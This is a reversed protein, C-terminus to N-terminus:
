TFGLEHIDMARTPKLKGLPTGDLTLFGGKVDIRMENCPALAAWIAKKRRKVDPNAQQEVWRAVFLKRDDRRAPRLWRGQHIWLKAEPDLLSKEVWSWPCTRKERGLLLEKLRPVLTRVAYWNACEGNAVSSYYQARYGTSSNHFLAVTLPDVGVTLLARFYRPRSRARERAHDILTAEKVIRNVIQEFGIRPLQRDVDDSLRWDEQSISVFSPTVNEM